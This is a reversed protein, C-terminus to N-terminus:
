PEIRLHTISDLAAAKFAARGVLKGFALVTPIIEDIATDVIDITMGTRAHRILGPNEPHAEFGLPRLVALANDRLADILYRTQTTDTTANM